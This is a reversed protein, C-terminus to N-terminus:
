SREDIRQQQLVIQIQDFLRGRQRGVEDQAAEHRSGDSLLTKLRNSDFSMGRM